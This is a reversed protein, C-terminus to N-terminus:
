WRLTSVIAGYIEMGRWLNGIRLNENPAHQNDDFNAMPVGIVPLKLNEFIYMPLSGGLPPLKVAPENAAADVVEILARSVPLDMATGAAPYGKSHDVRAIRPFKLREEMTPDRDFVEYGQKRMHAIVREVQRDPQVNKVLRLDLWATAQDPIITKSQAGTWGSAFGDINLSPQTILELLSKGSGDPQALGFEKLLEADYAPAERLAQREAEGLPAVDDYFGDVLVRGDADEMSALLQALRMAPNPAWNGYHGSHLPRLPGFVTIKVTVIGRDGFDILPRGSQHIPGDGSIVLDAQLFERHAMLTEELHPSGDEEEGDLVLKVNVAPPIGKARLADIAALIAVIPSKDDGASRAYIRWEDQYPTSANPFPILKGGAEISATRLAPEFPKTDTWGSLEVPQGDYHCYFIVTHAAGPTDLQGFVVPGRGAIPWLQTQFGRRGLKDVLKTANRQINAADNATNPIVLLENLEDVIAHENSLRYTRIQAATQAATLSNTAQAGALHPLCALLTLVLAARTLLGGLSEAYSVVSRCLIRMRLGPGFKM